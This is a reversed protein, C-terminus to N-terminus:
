PTLGEEEASRTAAYYIYAKVISKEGTILPSPAHKGREAQVRMFYEEFAFLEGELLADMEDSPIKKPHQEIQVTVRLKASM